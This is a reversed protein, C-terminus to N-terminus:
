STKEQIEITETYTGPQVLVTDRSRSANIANQITGYPAPVNLIRGVYTSPAGGSYGGIDSTDSGLGRQCDLIADFIEPDGADICPSNTSDGCALAMLHYDENEPDRFMPDVDINGHGPWGGGVDSYSILLYDDEMIENNQPANNHWIICNKMTVFSVNTCGIGGGRNTATNNTIVDNVLRVLGHFILIGGGLSGATNECIINNEIELTSSRCEIGGGWYLTINLRIINDTIKINSNDSLCIGGGTEAWNQIIINGAIVANSSDICLIGGGKEFTYNDSIFNDIITLSPIGSCYIGGGGSGSVNHSVINNSLVPNSNQCFVGGGFNAYGNQINFGTIETSSDEGTEFTVVSGASDGDIVTQEIYSTDGTTLFLSGLVINHGNFNINEYYTGPQVLVTDGDTSIDIGQQITPYDAPINIVTASSSAAM